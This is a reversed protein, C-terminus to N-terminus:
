GVSRGEKEGKEKVPSVGAKDDLSEQGGEATERGEIFRKCM